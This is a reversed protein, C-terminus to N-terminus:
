IDKSRAAAAIAPDNKSYRRVATTMGGVQRIPSEPNLAAAKRM